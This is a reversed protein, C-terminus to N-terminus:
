WQVPPELFPAKMEIKNLISFSFVTQIEFPTKLIADELESYIRFM